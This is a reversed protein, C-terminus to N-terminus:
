VTWDYTWDSETEIYRNYFEINQFFHTKSHNKQISYVVELM